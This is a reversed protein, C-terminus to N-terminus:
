PTQRKKNTNPKTQELVFLDYEHQLSDAKFFKGNSTWCVYPNTELGEDVIGVIPYNSNDKLVRKITAIKGSRTRYQKSQTIM